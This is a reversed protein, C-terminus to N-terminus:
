ARDIDSGGVDEGCIWPVRLVIMMLTVDMMTDKGIIDDSSHRFRLECALVNQVLFADVEALSAARFIRSDVEPLVIVRLCIRSEL